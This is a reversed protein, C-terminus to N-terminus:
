WQNGIYSEAPKYMWSTSALYELEKRLQKMRKSHGEKSTKQTKQHEVIEEVECEEHKSRAFGAKSTCPAAINLNLGSSSPESQSPTALVSKNRSSSSSSM